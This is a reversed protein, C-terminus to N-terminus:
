QCVNGSCNGSACDDNHACATAPACNGGAGGSMGSVVFDNTGITDTIAQNGLSSKRTHTLLVLNNGGDTATIKFNSVGNIANRIKTHLQDATDTNSTNIVINTMNTDTPGSADKDFEFVATVLYGDSITLTDDDSLAQGSSAM